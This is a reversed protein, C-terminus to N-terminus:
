ITVFGYEQSSVKQPISELPELSHKSVYKMDKAKKHSSGRGRILDGLEQQITKIKSPGVGNTQGRKEEEYSTKPELTMVLPEYQFSPIAKKM